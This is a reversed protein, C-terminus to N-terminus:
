RGYRVQYLVGSQDDSVILSGDPAVAVGVPRGWRQGNSFQWGTAFDDVRVPQGNQFVVHLLKPEAPPQRNWSGHVAVILSGSYGSPFQSGTYFTLGLPASHAQIPVTPPTINACNAGPEQPTANPPQCHPWGFNQGQGVITVLDPPIDNGQNDRENVTAWLTNTGPQFALGVSNRLGSAFRTYGSGDPNYQLIAARREDTEDCINCSSGVSVYMKGDPGFAVTRTVHGGGGPLATVVERAGVSGDSSYPYRSVQQTEGVYLYQGGDTKLLALSSPTNLGTILPQPPGAAPAISGNSAPYRYVSGSMDAVLLNGADDFTMFRPSRLGTALVSISFGQPLRLEHAAMNLGSPVILQTTVLDASPSGPGATGGNRSAIGINGLDGNAVYYVRVQGNGLNEARQATYTAGNVPTQFEASNPVFGDAFIRKQLAADPNFQIVQRQEGQALLASALPDSGESGREVFRVNGWDGNAVYYVRVAGSALNEARQASYTVGGSDLSFESSNPVFGDAFIRKQLAANPNFQIVQHNDAEALLTTDVPATDAFTAGPKLEHIALWACALLLAIGAAIFLSLPRQRMPALKM